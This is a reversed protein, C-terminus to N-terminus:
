QLAPVVADEVVVVDLEVAGDIVRVDVPVVAVGVTTFDEGEVSGATGTTDSDLDEVNDTETPPWTM